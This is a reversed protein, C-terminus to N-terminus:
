AKPAQQRHAQLPFRGTRLRYIVWSMVLVLPVQSWVYHDYAMIGFHGLLPSVTHNVVIAAVGHFLYIELSLAGLWQLPPKLLFRGIAGERGDLLATTLLILTAPIWWILYHSWPGVLSTYRNVATVALCCAIAALELVTARGRGIAALRPAIARYLGAAFMGLVFDGLRVLPCIYTFSREPGSLLPLLCALLLMAAALPLAQWRLRWRLYHRTLLPFCAYCFMLASLFWAQGNHFFFIGRHQDIWAQTLTTEAILIPWDIAQHDLWVKLVVITFLALWHIPYIRCARRWWFRWWSGAQLQAFEGGHRVTLLFGSAVFFFSVAASIVQDLLHVESHYLVVIMAFIGRWANITKFM